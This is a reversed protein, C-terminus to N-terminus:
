RKKMGCELRKLELRVNVEYRRRRGVRKREKEIDDKPGKWSGSMAVMCSLKTAANASKAEM